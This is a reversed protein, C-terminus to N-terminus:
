GIGRSQVGGGTGAPAFAAEALDIARGLAAAKSITEQYEADPNSDLVVGAGAQLDVRWHRRGGGEVAAATPVVMTRLALAMDIDGNWGVCGIGGAYPGRRVPELEDIIQIARIKPAGSVTGVPLCARLADWGDLGPRMCGVVTSSIHMVHSYREVEMTREIEVSGTECVRGLDNRGLDVLMVHEAREKPDALLEAELAADEEPTAGRRRTGALPRNVVTAGRTRCLIEPSSAVLISGAAQLYIMYPSPNVVRLARYIEFPDAETTRELRQSLVVQFADGAAIYEQATRVATRFAEPSTPGRGPPQPPASLELDVAAAKLLVADRELQSELRDLAEGGAATADAQSRHEDLPVATVAHLVKTVHDFVVVTRYLGVHMDPLGRDDRPAADWRLRSPELWRVADFGAYGVWGGHFVPPSGGPAFPTWEGTISRPVALPDEVTMSRREGRHHDTVTVERGHAVVEVAPRAGLLSWRGVTTGQEVSEFLFSPATRADPAVLRRYALVPTLHDSMLRRRLILLNPEPM